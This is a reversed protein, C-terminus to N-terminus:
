LIKERDVWPRRVLADRKKAGGNVGAEEAVVRGADVNVREM